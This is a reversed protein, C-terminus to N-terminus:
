RRRRASRARSRSSRGPPSARSDGGAAGAALRGAVADSRARLRGAPDLGAGLPDGRAVRHDRDAARAPHPDDRGGAARPRARDRARPVRARPHRLRDVARGRPEPHQGRAAQQVLADQGRVGRPLDRHLRRDPRRLPPAPRRHLADRHDGATCRRREPDSSPPNSLLTGNLYPLGDRLVDVLLVGLTLFGVALSFCCCARSSGKRSRVASCASAASRLTRRENTCRGYKRVLRIAFINMFLTLVFLLAGVAFITKYELSGTPVDGAGTAAIFATMAEAAERPDGTLNPQQGM